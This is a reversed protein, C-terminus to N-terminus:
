GVLKRARLLRAHLPTARDPDPSRSWFWGNRWPWEKVAGQYAPISQSYRCLRDAMALREEASLSLGMAPEAVASLESALAEVEQRHRQVVQGVNAHHVECLLGFVCNWLLKELEMSAFQTSEVTQAPVGLGSFWQVVEEALPGCFPSVGGPDIPAGRTPVAFFLLGRTAGSLGREDLWDRLMGNQIFVLARRRGQPVAQVVPDLDDNRVTVIIPAEGQALADWGTTRDVLTCSLGKAASAEAM